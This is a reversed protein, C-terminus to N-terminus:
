CLFNETLSFIVDDSFSQIKEIFFEFFFSQYNHIQAHRVKYRESIVNCMVTLVKNVRM